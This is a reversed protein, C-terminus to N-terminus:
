REKREVRFFGKPFEQKSYLREVAEGEGIIEDEIINWNRNDTSFEIAYISGNAASFKIEIATTVEVLAGPVSEASRPDYATQLEYLDTFGDADTDASNPDTSHTNVEDGDDLGDGDTDKTNLDTESILEEFADSLGDSDTDLYIRYEFEREFIGSSNRITVSWTGENADLYDITITSASGGLNAPIKFGNFCWQYTFEGPFGVSPSADVTITQGTPSEYLSDLAVYPAVLTQDLIELLYQEKASATHDFWGYQSFSTRYWSVYDESPTPLFEQGAWKSATLLEGTIWRYEGEVSEDTLGIHVRFNEEGYYERLYNDAAGIKDATNLVALRGGRGEADAKAEQWTFNGEIVQFAPLSKSDIAYLSAVESESLARDYFRLEDIVASELITDAYGEERGIDLPVVGQYNVWGQLSTAPLGVASLNVNEIVTGDIYCRINGVEADLIIVFHHFQGVRPAPFTIGIRSSFNRFFSMGIRESSYDMDWNRNGNERRNSFIRGPGEGSFLFSLTRSGRPNIAASHPVQAWSDPGLKLGSGSPSEDSFAPNAGRLVGNNDNGSEDNANGDFPYYAVLGNSLDQGFALGFWVLTGAVAHASLKRM